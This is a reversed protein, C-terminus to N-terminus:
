APELVARIEHASLRATVMVDGRDSLPITLGGREPTLRPRRGLSQFGQGLFNPIDNIAAQGEEPGLGSHLAQTDEFTLEAIRQYATRASWRGSASFTL